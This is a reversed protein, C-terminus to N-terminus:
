GDVVDTPREVRVPLGYDSFGITARVTNAVDVPPETLRGRKEWQYTVKAVRGEADLTVDGTFTVTASGSPEDVTSVATFRYAREGTSTIEADAQRLVDFLHERDASGSLAGDMVHHDFGLRDHRGPDRVFQGGTTHIFMEGNVLRQSEVGDTRVYGTATAPDFAGESTYSADPTVTDGYSKNYTTTATVRYSLAESAAIAAVLELRPSSAAGVTVGSRDTSAPGPWAVVTAGAVALVVCSAGVVAVTRRRRARVGRLMIQGTPPPTTPEDDVLARLGGSLRSDLDNM